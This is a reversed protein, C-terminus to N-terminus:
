ALRVVFAKTYDADATDVYLEGEHREIIRKTVALRLGTGHGATWATNETVFQKFIDMGEPLANGSDSIRIESYPIGSLTM